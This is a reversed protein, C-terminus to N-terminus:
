PPAGKTILIPPEEEDWDIVTIAWARVAEAEKETVSLETPGFVDLMPRLFSPADFSARAYDWWVASRKRPNVSIRWEGVAAGARVGEGEPHLISGRGGTAPTM